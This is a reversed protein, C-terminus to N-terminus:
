RQSPENALAREVPEAGIAVALRPLRAPVLEQRRGQDLRQAHCARLRRVESRPERMEQRADCVPLGRAQELRRDDAVAAVALDCMEVPEVEASGPAPTRKAERLM